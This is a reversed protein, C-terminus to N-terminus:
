FFSMANYISESLEHPDSSSPFSPTTITRLEQLEQPKRAGWLRPPLTLPSQELLQKSASRGAELTLYSVFFIAVRWGLVTMYMQFPLSLTGKLSDKLRPPPQQLLLARFTSFGHRTHWSDVTSNVVQILAAGTGFALANGIFMNGNFMSAYWPGLQERAKFIAALTLANKVWHIPFMARIAQKEYEKRKEPSVTKMEVKCLANATNIIRNRGVPGNVLITEFTAGLVVRQWLPREELTYALGVGAARSRVKYDLFSRHATWLGAKCQAKWTNKFIEAMRASPTLQPQFVSLTAAFPYSLFSEVTAGVSVHVINKGFEVFFSREQGAKDESMDIFGHKKIAAYIVYIQDRLVCFSSCLYVM